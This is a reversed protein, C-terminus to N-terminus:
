VSEAASSGPLASPGVMGFSGDSPVAPSVKPVSSSSSKSTVSLSSPIRGVSPLCKVSFGLSVGSGM